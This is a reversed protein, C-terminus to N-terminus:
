KQFVNGCGMRRGRGRAAVQAKLMAAKGRGSGSGQHKNKMSKLMPVNTLMDPSTLFCIKKDRIYVQELQAVPGERYPVAINSMRCNINDERGSLKGHYMKDTNTECTMIHGAAEHLVKILVSYSM